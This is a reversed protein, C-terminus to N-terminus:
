FILDGFVLRLVPPSFFIIIENNGGTIIRVSHADNCSENTREMGNVFAVDCHYRQVCANVFLPFALIDELCIGRIWNYMGSDLRYRKSDGKRKKRKEKMEIKKWFFM